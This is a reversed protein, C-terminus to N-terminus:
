RMKCLQTATPHTHDILGFIGFKATEDRQFEMRIVKGFVAIV